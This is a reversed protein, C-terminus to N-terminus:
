YLASRVIPEDNTIREAKDLRVEYPECMRRIRECHVVHALRLSEGVPLCSILGEGDFVTPLSLLLGDVECLLSLELLRDIAGEALPDGMACAIRQRPSGGDALRLIRAELPSLEFTSACDSRRDGVFTGESHNILVLSAVGASRHWDHVLGTLMATAAECAKNSVHNQPVFHYALSRIDRDPLRYAVLYGDSPALDAIGFREPTSFMPSFRDVRVRVCGDIPPRLHPIKRVREATKLLSEETEGPTAILINWFVNISLEACWKLLRLNQYASVGKRMAKLTSTDLSEIGPQLRDIGAARLSLLRERTLNSKTEYYISYGFKREILKPLLTEFYTYPFILDTAFLNAVGYRRLEDLETLVRDASKYRSAMAEGNLGCFVCHSKEGFWCGRSSEFPLSVRDNEYPFGQAVRQSFWDSYEPIPLSDLERNLRQRGNSRMVDGDRWVLGDISDVSGSDAAIADLLAAMTHEAEGQLVYDVYPFNRVTALGMEGECNAGGLVVTLDSARAKLARAVALSPLRFFTTSLGVVTAGTEITQEVITDIFTRAAAQLEPMLGDIYPPICTARNETRGGRMAVVAELTVNCDWVFPAFVVEGVLYEQPLHESITTYLDEGVAKAFELNAYRIECQRGRALIGQKILSLGINPQDITRFPLELLLCSM